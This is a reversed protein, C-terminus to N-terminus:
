KCLPNKAIGDLLQKCSTALTDKADPNAALQKFGEKQDNIAKELIPRSAEPVKAVCAEARELYTDCDAVGTVSPKAPPPATAAPEEGGGCGIVALGLGMTLALLRTM